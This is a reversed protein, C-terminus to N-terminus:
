SLSVVSDVCLVGQDTATAVGNNDYNFRLKAMGGM